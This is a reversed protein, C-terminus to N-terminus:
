SGLCVQLTDGEKRIDELFIHHHDGSKHILDDLSMLIDMWTPRYQLSKTFFMWEISTYHKKLFQGLPSNMQEDTVPEGNFDRFFKSLDVEDYPVKTPEITNKGKVFTTSTRLEIKDVGEFPVDSWEQGFSYEENFSGDVILHKTNRSFTNLDSIKM